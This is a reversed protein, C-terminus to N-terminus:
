HARTAPLHGNLADMAVQEAAGHPTGGSFEFGTEPDAALVFHDRGAPLLPLMQDPDKVSGFSFYLRGDRAAFSLTPVGFRMLDLVYEGSYHALSAAPLARDDVAVPPIGLVIRAIQRELSVPTLMPNMRNSLVVITTDREPYYAHSASYGWIEGSHAYKLLGGFSSRSLAGLLYGTKMGGSLPVETTILERVHASMAPSTFVARRYHALEEATSLLSGASFPVLYYWPTANELGGAGVDYGRARNPLMDRDDGSWVHSIGLPKLVDDRLYDYYKKGSVKEIILGLLYYGSNTYSWHSGPAFALPLPAFSAVMDARQLSDRRLRERLGPIEGTYNPIGSTHMLLQTVTVERAPGVYDTLISGVTSDLRLKGADVLTLVAHATLSKTISGIGYVSEPRAARHEAVDALGVDAQYLASGGQDVYVSVAPAGAREQYVAIVAALQERQAASLSAASGTTALCAGLVVAALHALRGILGHTKKM